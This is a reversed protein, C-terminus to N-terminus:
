IVPGFPHPHHLSIHGVVVLEDLIGTFKELGVVTFQDKLFQIDVLVNELANQNILQTNTRSTLVDQKFAPEKTLKRPHWLRHVGVMFFDNIYATTGEYAKDNYKPDLALSDIVTTL